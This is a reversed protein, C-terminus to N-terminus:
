PQSPGVKSQNLKLLLMEQKIVDFLNGAPKPKALAGVDLVPNNVDPV